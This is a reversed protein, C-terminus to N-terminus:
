LMVILGGIFSINPSSYNIMFLWLIFDLCKMFLGTGILVFLAVPGIIKWFDRM